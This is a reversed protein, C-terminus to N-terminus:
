HILTIVKTVTDKLVEKVQQNRLTYIFPNFLHTVICTQLTVAKKLGFSLGKNPVIYMFIASGYFVSAVTIHSACTSFAKKRGTSSSIRLITAIIYLYSVITLLLSSLLVITSLSFEIMELLATDACSLRILPEIDCFFHDIINPGCFPLKSIIIIPSLVSFFGGIWSSLILQVTLRANMITSYRLPNCIAVYRDLSMVALLIFETTGLFFYFYCQSICGSVSITKKRSLFDKMMKPAIATAVMADLFSLNGLFFYMPSHLRHDVWVATLIVVNGMITLIYVVLLAAFFFLEVQWGVSFGLLVFEHVKSTSQNSGFMQSIETSSIIVLHM